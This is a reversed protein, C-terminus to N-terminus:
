FLQLWDTVCVNSWVETVALSTSGRKGTVVVSLTHPFRSGNMVGCRGAALCLQPVCCLGVATSTASMWVAWVCADMTVNVRIHYKIDPYTIVCNAPKVSGRKGSTLTWSCNCMYWWCPMHTYPYKGHCVTVTCVDNYSSHVSFLMVIYPSCYLGLKSVVSSPSSKAFGPWGITKDQRWFNWWVM